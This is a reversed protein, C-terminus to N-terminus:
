SEESDDAKSERAKQRILKLEEKPRWNTKPALRYLDTRGKRQEKILLGADCLTKLAYQAKRVSMQCIEATKKLKAFCQGNLKGGTRRVVHTYLRFEYPDLGYDDLDSHVLPIPLSSHREEKSVVETNTNRAPETAHISPDHNNPRGDFISVLLKNQPNEKTPMSM